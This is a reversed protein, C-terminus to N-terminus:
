KEEDVKFGLAKASAKKVDTKKAKENLWFIEALKMVPTAFDKVQLAELLASVEEVRVNVTEIDNKRLADELMYVAWDVVWVQVQLKQSVWLLRVVTEDLEKNLNKIEALKGSKIFDEIEMRKVEWLLSIEQGNSM